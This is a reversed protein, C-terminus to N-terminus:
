GLLETFYSKSDVMINSAFGGSYEKVQLDFIIEMKHWTTLSLSYAYSGSNLREVRRITFLPMVFWCAPSYQQPAPQRDASEFAVFSDSLYVTGQYVDTKRGERENPRICLVNVTEHLTETLPLRFQKAFAENRKQAEM